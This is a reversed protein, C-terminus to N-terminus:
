SSNGEPPPGYRRGAANQQAIRRLGALLQDGLVTGVVVTQAASARDRGARAAEVADSVADLDADAVLDAARAYAPLVSELDGRGVAAWGDLVAAATRVGPNGPHVHWGHDAALATIREVSARSPPAVPQPLAQQATGLVENLPLDPADVATLVAATAAVSLGGVDILSRILRLRELHADTYDTQNYGTREGAPLLGERAYYKISAPSVGSRESLESIRM